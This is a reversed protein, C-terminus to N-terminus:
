IMEVYEAGAPTKKVDNGVESGEKIMDMPATGATKALSPLTEPM